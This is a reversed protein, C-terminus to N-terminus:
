AKTNAESKGREAVKPKEPVNSEFAVCDAAPAPAFGPLAGEGAKVVM